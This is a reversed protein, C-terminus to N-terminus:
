NNVKHKLKAFYLVIDYLKINNNNYKKLDIVVVAFYLVIDYLKINNNNYKKLDIDVVSPHSLM